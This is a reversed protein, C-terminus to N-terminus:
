VCVCETVSVCCLNSLEFEVVLFNSVHLVLSQADRVHPTNVAEGCVGVRKGAESTVGNM